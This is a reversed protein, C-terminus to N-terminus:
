WGGEIVLANLETLELKIKESGAATMPIQWYYTLGPVKRTCTLWWNGVPINQQVWGYGRKKLEMPYLGAQVSEGEADARTKEYESIAKQYGQWREAEFANWKKTEAAVYPALEAAWSYETFITHPVGLGSKRMGTHFCYQWRWGGPQYAKEPSTRYHYGTTMLQRKVDLFQIPLMGPMQQVVPPKVPYPYIRFVDKPHTRHPTKIVVDLFAVQQHGQPGDEFLSPPGDTKQAPPSYPLVPCAGPKNSEAAAKGAPSSVAVQTPSAAGAAAISGFAFLALSILIQRYSGRKM